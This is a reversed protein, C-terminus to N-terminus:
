IKHIRWKKGNELDSKSLNWKTIKTTNAVNEIRQDQVESVM